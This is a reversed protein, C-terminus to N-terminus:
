AFLDHEVTIDLVSQCIIVPSGNSRDQQLLEPPFSNHREPDARKHTARDPPRGGCNLPAACITLDPLILCM